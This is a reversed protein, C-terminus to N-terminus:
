IHILCNNSSDMGECEVCFGEQAEGATEEDWGEPKEDACEMHDSIDDHHSSLIGNLSLGHPNQANGNTTTTM